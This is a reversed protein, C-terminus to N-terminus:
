EYNHWDKLKFWSMERTIHRFFFLGQLIQKEM